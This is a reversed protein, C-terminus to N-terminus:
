EPEGFDGVGYGDKSLSVQTRKKKKKTQSFSSLSTLLVFQSLQISPNGCLKCM